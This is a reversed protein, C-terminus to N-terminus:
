VVVTGRHALVHVATGPAHRGVAAAFREGPTSLHVTMARRMGVPHLSGWHVPVAHHAGVLHVAEAAQDPDMHGPGLNPGWGWVPVVAVDIRGHPSVAALDRMGHFVATDGALYVSTRPGSVVHGVALADPGFPERRGSHSAPVVTVSVGRGLPVTEGVAVDVAGAIGQRAFWAGSRPPPVVLPAPFRRLTPVDCHDHHLHSVLVADLAVPGPAPPSVHRLLGVRRRLVPDVLVRVGDLELLVASHGWWTLQM